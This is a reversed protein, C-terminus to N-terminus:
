SAKIATGNFDNDMNSQTIIQARVVMNSKTMKTPIVIPIAMDLPQGPMVGSDTVVVELDGWIKIQGLM